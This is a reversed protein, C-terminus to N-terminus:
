EAAAGAKKETFEQEAEEEMEPDEEEMEEASVFGADDAEPPTAAWNGDLVLRVTCGGAERARVAADIVDRLAKPHVFNRALDLTALSSPKAAEVAEGLLRASSSLENDSLDLTELAPLAGLAAACASALTFAGDNGALRLSTLLPRPEAAVAAMVAASGEDGLLLDGLDLSTLSPTVAPSVLGALRPAASTGYLNDHLDLRTMASRDHALLAAILAEAGKAGVRSSTMQFEELAPSRAVLRAMAVGGEDGAMNNDFVLARLPTPTGTSAAAAEASAGAADESAGAAAGAGEGVLLCEAIDHQTEASIGCAIMVLRELSTQGDLLTRLKPKATRTMLNPSHPRYRRGSCTDDARELTLPASLPTRSRTATPMHRESKRLGPSRSALALRRM